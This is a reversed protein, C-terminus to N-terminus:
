TMPWPVGMENFREIHEDKYRCDAEDGAACPAPAMPAGRTFAQARDKSLILKHVSGPTDIRLAPLVDAPAPPKAGPQM